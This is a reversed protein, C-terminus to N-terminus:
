INYGRFERTTFTIPSFILNNLSKYVFNLCCLKCIDDFKLINLVKFLPTTHVDRRKKLIFRILKKQSVRLCNLNSTFASAWIINCYTLYPYAISNYVLRGISRTIKNRIRYIIGCVSSLKARVATIHNKWNLKFDVLLGLFKFVYNYPIPEGSLIVPPLPFWIRKRSLVM